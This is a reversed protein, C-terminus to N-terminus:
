FYCILLTQLLAETPLCLLAPFMLFVSLQFLFQFYLLIPNNLTLFLCICNQSPTPLSISFTVVMQRAGMIHWTNAKMM